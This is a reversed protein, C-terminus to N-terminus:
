GLTTIYKETEKQKGAQPLSTEFMFFNLNKRINQGM